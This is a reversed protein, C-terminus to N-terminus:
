LIVTQGSFLRQPHLLHTGTSCCAREPSPHGIQSPSKHHACKEQNERVRTVTGQCKLLQPHRPFRAVMNLDPTAFRFKRIPPSARPRATNEFQCLILTSWTVATSRKEECHFDFVIDTTNDRTRFCERLVEHCTIKLAKAKPAKKPALKSSSRPLTDATAASTGATAQTATTSAAQRSKATVVCSSSSFKVIMDKTEDLTNKPKPQWIHRSDHGCQVLALQKKSGSYHAPSAIVQVGKGKELDM